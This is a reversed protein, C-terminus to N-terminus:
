GADQPHAALYTAADIPATHSYGIPLRVTGASSGYFVQWERYADYLKPNDRMNEAFATVTAVYSDNPNYQHLAITMDAPGGSQALYTAAGIIADHPISPDGVCCGAWTAPLFQMPGVAGASSVGIIRGMRTEQLHIAALWYWAVGTTAEAEAYYGRLEDPALPEVITWAPLTASPASPNPDAARRAEGLERARVIREVYPRVDDGVGALVEEDLDSNAALYRYWLQQTAGAGPEGHAAAREAATLGNAVQAATPADTIRSTLALITTTTARFPPGSSSTTAVTTVAASPTSTASRDAIPDSSCAGVIAVLACATAFRDPRWRRRTVESM